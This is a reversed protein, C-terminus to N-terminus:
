HIFNGWVLRHFGKLDSLSTDFYSFNRLYRSAETLM